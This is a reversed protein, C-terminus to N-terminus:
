VAPGISDFDTVNITLLRKEKYNIMKKEARSPKQDAQTFTDFEKLSTQSM